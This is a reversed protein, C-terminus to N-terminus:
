TLILKELKAKIEKLEAVEASDGKKAGGDEGGKGQQKQAEKDAAREKSNKFQDRFAEDAAPDQGPKLQPGQEKPKPKFNDPNLNDPGPVNKKEGTVPDTGGIVNGGMDKNPNILGQNEERKKRFEELKKQQQAESRLRDRTEKETKGFNLSEDQARLDNKLGQERLRAATALESNLSGMAKIEAQVAVLQAQTIKYRKSAESSTSGEINLINGQATQEAVLVDHEAKRLAITRDMAALSANETALEEKDYRGSREKIGLVDRQVDRQRIMTQLEESPGFGQSGAAAVGRAKERSIEMQISLSSQAAQNEAISKNYDGRKSLNTEADRRKQLVDLEMKLSQMRVDDAGGMLKSTEIALRNDEANYDRAKEAAALADKQVEKQLMLDARKEPSHELRLKERTADLAERAATVNPDAGARNGILNGYGANREIEHLDKARQIGAEEAAQRRQVAAIVNRERDADYKGIEEAYRIQRALADAQEEYGTAIKEAIDAREGEKSAMEAIRRTETERLADAMKQLEMQKGKVMDGAMLPGSFFNGKFREWGTNLRDIEKEYKEAAAAAEKSQAAIEQMDKAPGNERQKFVSAAADSFTNLEAAANEIANKLAIGVAIAVGVGLSMKFTDGLRDASIALADLASGTIAYDAIMGSLQREVRKESELLGENSKTKRMVARVDEDVVAAARAHLAINRQQEAQRERMVNSVDGGVVGSARAHLEAAKREEAALRAQADAAAELAQREKVLDALRAGGRAEAAAVERAAKNQREMANAVDTQGAAVLRAVEVREREKTVLAEIKQGSASRASSVEAAKQLEKSTESVATKLKKEAEAGATASAVIQKQAEVIGTSDGTFRIKLDKTEAAM